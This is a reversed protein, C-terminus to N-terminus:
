TRYNSGIQYTVSALGASIVNEKDDKVTVVVTPAKKMNKQRVKM